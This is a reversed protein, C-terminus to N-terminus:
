AEYAIIRRGQTIPNLRDRIIGIKFPGALTPHDLIRLVWDSHPALELNPHFEIFLSLLERLPFEGVIGRTSGFEIAQHLLDLMGAEGLAAFDDPYKHAVHDVIRRELNAQRRSQIIQLQENRIVLV